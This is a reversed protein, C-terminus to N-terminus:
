DAKRMKRSKTTKADKQAATALMDPAVLKASFPGGPPVIDRYSPKRCERMFRVYIRCLYFDTSAVIVTMIIGWLAGRDHWIVMVGVISSAVLLALAYSDVLQRARLRVRFRREDSWRGKTFYSLLGAIFFYSSFVFTVGIFLSLLSESLPPLEASIRLLEGLSFLIYFIGVPGFALALLIYLCIILIKSYRGRTGSKVFGQAAGKAAASALKMAFNEAFGM